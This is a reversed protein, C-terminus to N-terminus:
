GSLRSLGNTGTGSRRVLCVLCVSYVLYVLDVLCVLCVKRAVTRAILEWGKGAM